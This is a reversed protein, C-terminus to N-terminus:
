LGREWAWYSFLDMKKEHPSNKMEHFQYRNKFHSAAGDSIIIECSIDLDPYKANIDNKIHNMAFLAHASDHEKADSVLAYSLTIGNFHCVATFISVQDNKWHYGQIENQIIVSWNEAFDVHLILRSPLSKAAAKEERIAAQQIQKYKLHPSVKLTWQALTDIFKELTLTKKVLDNKEWFAFLIEDDEDEQTCGFFEFSIASAGPCTKCEGFICMEDESCVIASLLQNQLEKLNKTM